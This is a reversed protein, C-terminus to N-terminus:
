RWVSQAKVQDEGGQFYWRTHGFLTKLRHYTQHLSHVQRAGVSVSDRFPFFNSEVHGVDGLLEM